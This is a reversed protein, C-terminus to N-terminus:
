EDMKSTLRRKGRHTHKFHQGVCGEMISLFNSVRPPLIEEQERVTRLTHQSNRLIACEATSLVNTSQLLFWPNKKKESSICITCETDGMLSFMM